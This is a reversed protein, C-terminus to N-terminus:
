LDSAPSPSRWVRPTAPSGVAAGNSPLMALRAPVVPPVFVLDGPDTTMLICRQIASTATEVVYNKDNPSMTAAWINNIRRGPVEDEYRKWSLSSQAGAADLRGSEALGTGDKRPYGGNSVRHAIFFMVMGNMPIQVAPRPTAGHYSRCAAISAAGREASLRNPDFCEEPTPKRCGGDPLEVM